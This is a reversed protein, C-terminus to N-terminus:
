PRSIVLTLLLAIQGKWNHQKIKGQAWLRLRQWYTYRTLHAFPIDSLHTNNFRQSLAEAQVVSRWFNTQFRKFHSFFHRVLYFVGYSRAGISNHRHQRYDILPADIFVICGCMKAVLILWWDHMFAASPIPLAHQLLARNFLMTCGSAVNQQLLRETGHHWQHSINRLQFFSPCIENLQEDVIRKDTFVLAPQDRQEIAQLSRTIKAPHWIDDQDSLMIYDASTLSLGYGFNARPGYQPGPNTHWEIRADHKQLRAVIQRTHDTSGDDVIIIRAVLASYHFAHQISVIQPEIFREGNYTALVIDICTKKM